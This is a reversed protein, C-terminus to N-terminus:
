STFVHSLSKQKKKFINKNEIKRLRTTEFIQCKKLFKAVNNFNVTKLFELFLTALHCFHAFLFFSHQDIHLVGSHNTTFYFYFSFHYRDVYLKCWARTPALELKAGWFQKIEKYSTSLTVMYLEGKGKKNHLSSIIFHNLFKSGVDELINM